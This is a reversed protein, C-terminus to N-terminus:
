KSKVNLLFHKRGKFVYFKNGETYVITKMTARLLSFMYAFTVSSFDTALVSVCFSSFSFYKVRIEAELGSVVLLFTFM